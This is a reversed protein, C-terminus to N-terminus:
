AAKWETKDRMMANLITLLKRMCATIALKKEKGGDRLRKYYEKLVPNHRIGSLTSLYLVTRVHKRGGRCSRKGRRKGSDNNIPAVGVLRAIERRSLAGLEPLDALLTLAAILGVGKVTILREAKEKWEPNAEIRKRLEEEIANIRRDLHGINVKLDNAAYSGKPATDLRNKDQTRMDVLQRRRAVIAALERQEPSHLSRPEPRKQWGYLALAYADVAATKALLGEGKAFDRAQKPNLIVVGFDADTLFYTVELHFINTAELIVLTGPPLFKKLQHHGKPTNAFERNKGDPLLHVALTQKAVDVGAVTFNKENM